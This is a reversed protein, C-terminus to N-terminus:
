LLASDEAEEVDLALLKGSPISPLIGSTGTGDRAKLDSNSGLSPAMDGGVHGTSSPNRIGAASAYLHRPRLRPPSGGSLSTRYDDNGDCSRCRMLQFFCHPPQPLDVPCGLLM